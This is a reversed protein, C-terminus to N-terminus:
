VPNTRGTCMRMMSTSGSRSPMSSWTPHARIDVAPHSLAKLMRQTMQAKPMNLRSHVSILVIDFRELVADPLDL